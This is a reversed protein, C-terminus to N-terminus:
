FYGESRGRWRIVVNRKGAAVQGPVLILDDLDLGRINGSARSIPLRTAWYIWCTTM